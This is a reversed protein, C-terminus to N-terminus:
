NKFQFIRTMEIHEIGDLLYVDSNKIFGFSEYFKLLYFQAGIRISNNYRKETETISKRLLEKGVGKRRVLMSTIVRGISPFGEYCFGPPVIRAYAVLDENKWCTLHACHQDINDMDQFPCNQEVVFIESRLRLITYLEKPSLDNFEKLSWALDQDNKENLDFSM